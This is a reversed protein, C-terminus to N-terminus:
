AVKKAPIKIPKGVPQIEGYATPRSLPRELSDQSTRSVDSPGALLGFFLILTWFATM